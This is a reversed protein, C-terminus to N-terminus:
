QRAEHAAAIASTLEIWGAFPREERGNVAITGALPTAGHEIELTIRLTTPAPEEQKASSKEDV